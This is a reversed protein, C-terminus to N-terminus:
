TDYARDNSRRRYSIYFTSTASHSPDTAVKSISPVVLLAVSDRRASTAPLKILGFFTGTINNRPKSDLLTLWGNKMSNAANPCTLGGPYTAAGLPCTPDAQPGGSRGTLAGERLGSHSLSYS